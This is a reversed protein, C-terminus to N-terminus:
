QSLKYPQSPLYGPLNGCIDFGRHTLLIYRRLFSRFSESLANLLGIISNPPFHFVLRSIISSSRGAKLLLEISGSIQDDGVDALGGTVKRWDIQLDSTM